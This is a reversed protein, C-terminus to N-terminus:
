NKRIKGLHLCCVDMKVLFVALIAVEIRSIDQDAQFAEITFHTVNELNHGMGRIRNM